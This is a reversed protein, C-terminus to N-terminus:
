TEALPARSPLRRHRALSRVTAIMEVRGVLGLRRVVHLIRVAMVIDLVLLSMAAGSPGWARALGLSAFVSCISGALYLYTYSAHRNIALVLNAMPWWCCNVLMSLSMFFMLLHPVIVAHRSWQLIVFRGYLNMLLVAPVAVLAALLLNIVIIQAGSLKDDNARSRTFEPMSAHNLVTILQIPIRSFTRVVTFVPVAAAGTVAGVALVTGQLVLAQAGPLAMIAFAPGMLSKMVSLRLGATIRTLWPAHRRLALMLAFSGLLRAACYWMAAHFLGGGALVVAFVGFAEAATIGVYMGSGVMYGRTANFGAFSVSNQLALVGYLLFLGVTARAHGQTAVSVTKLMSHPILAILSWGAMVLIAGLLMVVLRTNLFISHAGERDGRSVRAAIDNGAASAFGLDAMALYAPVTSLLLWVGYNKLGWVTSLLPVSIIQIAIQLLQVTAYSASGRAIHSFVSKRDSSPPSPMSTKNEGQPFQVSRYLGLM